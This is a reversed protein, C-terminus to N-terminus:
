GQRAERLGLVPRLRKLYLSRARPHRRATSLIMGKGVRSNRGILVLGLIAIPLGVPIFPTLVGIPFSLVVLVVGLLSMMTKMIADELQRM